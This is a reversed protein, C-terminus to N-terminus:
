PRPRYHSNAVRHLRPSHLLPAALQRSGLIQQISAVNLIFEDRLIHQERYALSLVLYLKKLYFIKRLAQDNFDLAKSCRSLGM